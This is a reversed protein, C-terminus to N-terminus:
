FDAQQDFRMPKSFRHPKHGGMQVVANPEWKNLVEFLTM